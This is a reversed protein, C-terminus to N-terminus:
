PKKPSANVTLTRGGQVTVWDGLGSCSSLIKLDCPPTDTPFILLRHRGPPIGDVKLRNGDDYRANIAGALVRDGDFVLLTVDIDGLSVGAVPKVLIKGATGLILEVSADRADKPFHIANPAQPQGNVLVTDLYLGEQVVAVKYSVDAPLGIQQNAVHLCLSYSGRYGEVEDANACFQQPLPRGEVLHRATYSVKVVPLLLLDVSVSSEAGVAVVKGAALPPDSVSTQMEIFYQGPPLGPVEFLGQGNSSHVSVAKAKETPEQLLPRIELSLDLLSIETNASTRVTLKSTPVPELVFNTDNLIDGYEVRLRGPRVSIPLATAHDGLQIPPVAEIIYEGDWMDTFEYRGAADTMTSDSGEHGPDTPHLYITVNAVPNGDPTSVRGRIEVCRDLRVLADPLRSGPRVEFPTDLRYPDGIVAEPSCYDDATIDLRYIGPLVNEFRFRGSTDTEVGPNTRKGHVYIYGAHSVGPPDKAPILAIKADEIPAGTKGDVVIGSLSAGSASGCLVAFLALTEYVCRM